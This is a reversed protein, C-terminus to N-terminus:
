GGNGGAYGILVHETAFIGTPQPPNAPNPPNLPDPLPPLQYRYSLRLARKVAYPQARFVWTMYDQKNDNDIRLNLDSIDMDPDLAAEAQNVLQLNQPTAQNAYNTLATALNGLDTALQALAALNTPVNGACLMTDMAGNTYPNLKRILKGIRPEFLM